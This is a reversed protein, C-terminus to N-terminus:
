DHNFYKSSISLYLKKQRIKKLVNKLKCEDYQPFLPIITSIKFGDIFIYKCMLEIDSKTYTKYLITDNDWEYNYSINKWTVRDRIRSLYLTIHPIHELGMLRIIKNM